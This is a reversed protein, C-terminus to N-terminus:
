RCGAEAERRPHVPGPEGVPHQSGELVKGAGRRWGRIRDHFRTTPSLSLQSESQPDLERQFRSTGELLRDLDDTRAALLDVITAGSNVLRTLDGFRTTFLLTLEDLLRPGKIFNDAILDKRSVTFRQITDLRDLALFLDNDIQKFTEGAEALQTIGKNLLAENDNLPKLAKIGSEIQRIVADEHGVFGTSLAELTAALNEPDVSDLLPLATNLITEVELPDITRSEDILDEEAMRADEPSDPYLLEVWKEGFVTKARIQAGVNSPIQDLDEPFLGLTVRCNGGRIREIEEIMGVLVGRLKIDGRVRLGQGCNTFEAFVPVRNNTLGGNILTYGTLAFAGAILALAVLGILVQRM